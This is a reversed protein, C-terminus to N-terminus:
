TERAVLLVISAVLIWAMWAFMGVFTITALSVVGALVGLWGLWKPVGGRIAALSAPVAM